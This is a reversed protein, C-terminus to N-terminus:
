ADRRAGSLGMLLEQRASPALTRQRSCCLAPWVGAAFVLICDIEVSSGGCPIRCLAHPRRPTLPKPCNVEPVEILHTEKNVAVYAVDKGAGLKARVEKLFEKLIRDAAALDVEAADYAEDVGQAVLALGPDGVLSHRTCQDLM